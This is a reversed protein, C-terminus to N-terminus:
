FETEPERAFDLAAVVDAFDRVEDRDDFCRWALGGDFTSPRWRGGPPRRFCCCVPRHGAFRLEAEALLADAQFGEPEGTWVCGPPLAGLLETLCARAAADFCRWADPRERAEAAQREREEGERRRRRDAVRGALQPPLPPPGNDPPPQAALAEPQSRFTEPISM